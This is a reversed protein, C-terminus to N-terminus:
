ESASPVPGGLETWPAPVYAAGPVGGLCLIQLGDGGPTIQRMSSPGVRAMTGPRLEYSKGDVTLTGTGRLPVYVEEQGSKLEDHMPYHAFGAPMNIVQMGFSKVGLAARARVMVGDFVSEMEDIRKVTTGANMDSM